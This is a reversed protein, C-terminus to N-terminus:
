RGVTAAGNPAAITMAKTIRMTERSSGSTKIFIEGGFDVASIGNTLRQYPSSYNGNQLSGAYNFDVWVPAYFNVARTTQHLRQRLV